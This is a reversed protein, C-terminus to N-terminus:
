TNKRRLLRVGGIGLFAVVCMLLWDIVLSALMPMLNGDARDPLPLPFGLTVPPPHGISMGSPPNIYFNRFEQMLLDYKHQQYWILGALFVAAIVLSWLIQKKLTM